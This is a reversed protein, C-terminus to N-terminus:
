LNHDGAAEPQYLIRTVELRRIGYPVSWEFQDGVGYGLMAAGLPALVSIRGADLDADRPFVLTFAMIEGTDLDLLEARSNMTIVNSPVDQSAVIRARNLESELAKLDGRNRYDFSKAVELLERLREADRDTIYITNRM